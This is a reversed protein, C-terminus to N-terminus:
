PIAGRRPPEGLLLERGLHAEIRGVDAVDLGSPVARGLVEGAPGVGHQGGAARDQLAEALVVLGAM